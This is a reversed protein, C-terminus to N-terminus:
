EELSELVDEIREWSIPGERLLEYEDEIARIITSAGSGSIEGADIILDLQNGFKRAIQEATRIPPEGELNASTAALPRSLMSIVSLTVLHDPMRVGLTDDKSAGKLSASRKNIIMTMAGPWFAAALAEMGPTINVALKRFLGMSDVLVAIPKESDRGKLQRLKEMARPNTADAVLGYVTDTPLAIVGGDLLIDSAEEVALLQPNDPDMRLITAGSKVSGEPPIVEPELVESNEATEAAINKKQDPTAHSGPKAHPYAEYLEENQKAIKSQWAGRYEELKTRLSDDAISLIHLALIVANEASDIGVTAVPIGPPMQVISYLADTGQMPSANFPVGIVPLLTKSAVVGPLHASAGAGAVFVRVGRAEADKMWEVLKEPTRHASAVIIEFPVDMATLRDLGKAMRSVDSYSGLVVGIQATM